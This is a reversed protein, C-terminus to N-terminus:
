LFSYIIIKLKYGDEIKVLTLTASPYSGYCSSKNKRGNQPKCLCPKYSRWSVSVPCQPTKQWRNCQATFAACVVQAARIICANPYIIPPRDTADFHLLWRSIIEKWFPFARSSKSAFAFSPFIAYTFVYICYKCIIELDIKIM